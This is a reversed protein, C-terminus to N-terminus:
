GPGLPRTRPGLTYAPGALPSGAVQGSPSGASNGIGMRPHTSLALNTPRPHTHGRFPSSTEGQAHGNSAYFPPAPNSRSSGEAWPSELFGGSSSSIERPGPGCFSSDSMQYEVFQSTQSVDDMECDQEQPYADLNRSSADEMEWDQPSTGGLGDNNHDM